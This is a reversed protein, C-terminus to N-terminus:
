ETPGDYPAETLDLIQFEKSMDNIYQEKTRGTQSVADVWGEQAMEVLVDIREKETEARFLLCRAYFEQLAELSLTFCTLKGKPKEQKKKRTAM